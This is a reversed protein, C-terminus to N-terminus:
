TGSRLLALLQQIAQGRHSRRNKEPADLEASTLGLGEPQFLPDYGFGNSGRPSNLIRGRWGAQCILPQPDDAHRLYALVCVFQAGREAPELSQLEQLLKANNDVDTADTGAFRASYIGPAGQLADVCLGSDDALAPFGSETAAHRAKLLANEVFTLGTEPPSSIGLQAQTVLDFFEGLEQQFERLKGPNGTALAVRIPQQQISM